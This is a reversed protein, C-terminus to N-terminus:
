PRAGPMLSAGVITGGVFMAERAEALAAAFAEKGQMALVDLLEQAADEAEKGAFASLDRGKPTPTGRGDDLGMLFLAYQEVREIPSEHTITWYMGAAEVVKENRDWHWCSVIGAFFCASAIHRMISGADSDGAERCAAFIRKEVQGSTEEARVVLDVNPVTGKNWGAAEANQLLRRLFWNFDKAVPLVPKPKAREKAPAPGPKEQRAEKPGAAKKRFFSFFSM